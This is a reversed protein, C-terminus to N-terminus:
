PGKSSEVFVDMQQGVMLNETDGEIRYVVEVIRTDVKETSNGSLQQKPHAYPEVYALTLPFRIERNSRLYAMAKAGKEYRWVDNEDIQVRIHLPNISGMIVFTSDQSSNNSVLEGEEISVKLITGNIPATVTLKDLTVQALSLQAKAEELQATAEGFDAQAKEFAFHRKKREEDSIALDSKLGKARITQDEALSLQAKVSQIRAEAATVQAQKLEIDAKATRTDLTFLQDGKKVVDGSDVHVREVIGSSYSGVNINRTNAEVIGSGSVSKEFPSSPPFTLQNPIPPNPNGLTFSFIIGIFIGAAGLAILPYRRLYPLMTVFLPLLKERVLNTFSKFLKQLM